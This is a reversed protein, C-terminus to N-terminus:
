SLPLPFGVRLKWDVVKTPTQRLFDIVAPDWRTNTRELETIFADAGQLNFWSEEAQDDRHTFCWAVYDKTLFLIVHSDDSVYTRFQPQHEVNQLLTAAPSGEKIMDRPFAVRAVAYGSDQVAVDPGANFGEIRSGIGNAGICIDASFEEKATTIVVRDTEERVSLVKEGFRIPIALRECQDLQRRAWVPRRTLFSVDVDPAPHSAGPRKWEPKTSKIAVGSPTYVHTTCDYVCKHYEDYM